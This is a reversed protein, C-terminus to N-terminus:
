AGPPQEKVLESIRRFEPTGARRCWEFLMAETTTITAGCAELRRLAIQWDFKRRSGVADAAVYVCWGEALLDLATQQVCVHAEIGCLAIRTIGAERWTPMVSRCELCSFDMKAAAPASLRSALEAETTGLKAPNQETAMRPLGLAAAGDLLRRCNWVVRAAEHIAPVLRQQVDIVLLATDDSNMLEPSRLLCQPETEHPHDNTANQSM